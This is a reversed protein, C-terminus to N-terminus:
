GHIEPEIERRFADVIEEDARGLLEAPARGFDAHPRTLWYCLRIHSWHDPRMRNLERLVPYIQGAELDFQFLPYFPRGDRDIRILEGREEKRRLTASPNSKSLRLLECAETQDAMDLTALFREQVRVRNLATKVALNRGSPLAERIMKRYNDALARVEASLAAEAADAFRSVTRRESVHAAGILDGIFVLVMGTETAHAQLQEHNLIRRPAARDSRGAVESVITSINEETQM